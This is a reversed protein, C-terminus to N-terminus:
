VAPGSPRGLMPAIVARSGVLAHLLKPDVGHRAAAFAIAEGYPQRLPAVVAGALATEDQGQGAAIDAPRGFM